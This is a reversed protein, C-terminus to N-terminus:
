SIVCISLRGPGAQVVFSFWIGFASARESSFLLVLPTKVAATKGQALSLWFQGWSTHWFAGFNVALFFYLPSFFHPVWQFDPLNPFASKTRLLPIEQLFCRTNHTVGSYTVPSWSPLLYTPINNGWWTEWVNSVALSISQNSWRDEGWHCIRGTVWIKGEGSTATRHSGAGAHAATFPLAYGLCYSPATWLLWPCLPFSFLANNGQILSPIEFICLM